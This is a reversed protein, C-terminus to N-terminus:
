KRCNCFNHATQWWCLCGREWPGRQLEPVESRQHPSCQICCYCFLKKERSCMPLGHGFVAVRYRAHSLILRGGGGGFFFVWPEPTSVRHILSFNLNAQLRCVNRRAWRRRPVNRSSTRRRNLSLFGTLSTFDTQFGTMLASQVNSYNCQDLWQKRIVSM